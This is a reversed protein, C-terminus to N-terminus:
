ALRLARAVLAAAALDELASGVSKFLTVQEANERGAVQGRCLDALTGRVHAREILGAQLPQVIDGGETLVADTDMFVRARTVADDDAERMTPLYAGVLDVHTGPRLWAGQILPTASLTACSVIDAQRAAAELDETAFAEFGEARLAAALREAGAARLNWVLVRKIPRVARWAPAFLSAVHGSGVVLLTEADPRALYDGALASAAATRRGTIENGDLIAVHRGTEGDCLLYTSSVANLGRKGNEPFVTVLKVGLAARGQWAPMLLLVAGADLAHRHRLPAQAGAVFTDRLAAVLDPFALAARTREADVLVPGPMPTM